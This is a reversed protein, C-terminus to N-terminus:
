RYRASGSTDVEVANTLLNIIKEIRNNITLDTVESDVDIRIGSYINEDVLFEVEHEKGFKKLVEKTIKEELDKSIKIKSYVKIM